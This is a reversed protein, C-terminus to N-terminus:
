AAAPENIIEICLWGIRGLMKHQERHEQIMAVSEERADGISRETDTFVTPLMVPHQETAKITPLLRLKEMNSSVLM